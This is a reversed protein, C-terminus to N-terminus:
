GSRPIELETHQVAVLVADPVGLKTTANRRNWANAALRAPYHKVGNRPMGEALRLRNQAATGGGTGAIANLWFERAEDPAAALTEAMIVWQKANSFLRPAESSYQGSTIWDYLEHYKPLHELVLSEIDVLSPEDAGEPLRYGKTWQVQWRAATM